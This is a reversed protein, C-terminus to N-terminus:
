ASIRSRELSVLSNNIAQRFTEVFHYNWVEDFKKSSKGKLFGAYKALTKYPLDLYIVFLTNLRTFAGDVGIQIAYDEWHQDFDNRDGPEGGKLWNVRIIVETLDSNKDFCWDRIVPNTSIYYLTLLPRCILDSGYELASESNLRIRQLHRMCRGTAWKFFFQIM